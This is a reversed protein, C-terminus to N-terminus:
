LGSFLLGGVQIGNTYNLTLLSEIDSVNWGTIGSAASFVTAAFGAIIVGAVTGLTAVATKRTPGGILYLTAVTTVVCVLVSVWFPSWGRYVLPLYVFLICLFTLILGGSAKVGQKGGM